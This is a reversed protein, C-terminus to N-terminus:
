GDEEGAGPPSEGVSTPPSLPNRSDLLHFGIDDISQTGNSLVVVGQHRITDLGMFSHFGGTGGNHWLIPRDPFRHNILWGLAMSLGEAVDPVRLQQTLHLAEFVPGEGRVLNAAAFVLMDNTTSRLAGAGALVPIDWLPVPGGDM